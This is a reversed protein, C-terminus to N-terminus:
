RKEAAHRAARQEIERARRSAITIAKMWEACERTSLAKLLM